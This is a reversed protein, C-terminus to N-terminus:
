GGRARFTMAGLCLESVKMGSRGLFRYEMTRKELNSLVTGSLGRLCPPSPTKRIRETDGTGLPLSRVSEADFPDGVPTSALYLWELDFQPLWQQQAALMEDVMAHIQPLTCVAGTLPDLMVAHYVADIDGTSAAHM